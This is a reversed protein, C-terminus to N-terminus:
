RLQWNQIGSLPLEQSSPTYGHLREPVIDITRDQYVPFFPVMAALV